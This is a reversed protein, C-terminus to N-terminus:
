HLTRTFRAIDVSSMLQEVDVLVLVREGAEDATQGSADAGSDVVVGVVRSGIAFIIVVMVSDGHAERRAARCAAVVVDM